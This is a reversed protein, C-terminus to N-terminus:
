LKPKVEEGEIPENEKVTLYAPDGTLEISIVREAGEVVKPPAKITLIGDTSLESTVSEPDYDKPLIYRRHFQRSILGHEDEREEHKGEVMVANETVKVTIESPSFQHVDVSVQFGNKGTPSVMESLKGSLKIEAERFRRKLDRMERPINALIEQPHVGHGFDNVWQLSPHHLRWYPVITLQWPDSFFHGFDKWHTVAMVQIKYQEQIKRKDRNTKL